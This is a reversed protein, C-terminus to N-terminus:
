LAEILENCIEKVTKHDTRITIDAAMKYKDARKDMLAQIFEVNMNGNLIPRHTNNKVRELITEPTATLLIIKGQQKMVKVNEPRLVAGGGCSIIIGKQEKLDYIAQTERDRFYEEGEKEFMEKITQGEKEEIYQDMDIERMNLLKSLENSVTSKGSGMFGILLINYDIIKM